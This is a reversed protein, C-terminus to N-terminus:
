VRERRWCWNGTEADYSVENLLCPDAPDKSVYIPFYKRRMSEDDTQKWGSRLDTVGQTTIGM